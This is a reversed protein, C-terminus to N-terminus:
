KRIMNRYQAPTVGAHKKFVGFSHGSYEMGCAGFADKVSLSADRLMEMLRELKYKIYYSYPTMGMDNKFIRTFHYPSLGAAKATESLDFEKDWNNEMYEVSKAISVKGRYIRKTIFMIVVHSVNGAEDLIPFGTLDQYMAEVDTNGSQYFERISKLPVKVDTKTLTKGEFLGKVMGTLGAKEIEPDKFINYKGIVMDGDPIDFENLFIRNIMVTTGDKAYVEIPYPFFDVINSFLDEQKWCLGSLLRSCIWGTKILNM